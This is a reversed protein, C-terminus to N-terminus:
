WEWLGAYRSLDTRGACRDPDFGPDSARLALFSRVLLGSGGLLVLALAVQAVVLADRVLHQRGTATSRRSVSQLGRAPEARAGRWAPLVGALCAVVTSVVVAFVFVRVDMAVEDLRPLDPVLRPLLQLGGVALAVGGAGGLLALVFSEMWFQRLLRGLTSGLALRVANEVSRDLGRMVSLMAVNACAVLLVLGVSAFLIWLVRASDGVVETALPSLRVGWGLNTDPFRRGLDAAVGNLDDQADVLSVGTELRAVAGLYHQDRPREGSLDWPIWLQVGAEPLAFGAPMVGVVRFPQRELMVTQGVIDADGGFRRQWLGHGIVVVPNTGTPAAAPSFQAARTEAETFTRGLHPTARTLSFFDTSVQATLVVDADGEASLTRGMAYYGAIGDFSQTERRWDDINGSTAGTRDVGLEPNIDFVRVLRDADPYPLPRLVVGDVLAFLVTSAGIGVAITAVSLVTQGPARRLVRWAYAMEKVLQELRFGTRGEALRDRVVDVGGLELRAQRRAEREDVGSRVKEAVALAVHHELEAVSERDLQRKEFVERYRRWVGHM